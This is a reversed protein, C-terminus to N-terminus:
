LVVLKVSLTKYTFHLLSIIIFLLHSVTLLPLLLLLLSLKRNYRYFLLIKTALWRVFPPSSERLTRCTESSHFIYHAFPSANVNWWGSRKCSRWCSFSWSCSMLLNMLIMVTLENINNYSYKWVKFFNFAYEWYSFWRINMLM